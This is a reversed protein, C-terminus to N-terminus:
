SYQINVEFLQCKTTNKNKNKRDKPIRRIFTVKKMISEYKLNYELNHPLMQSYYLCLVVLLCTKLSISGNKQSLTVQNLLFIKRNNKKYQVSFTNMLFLIQGQSPQSLFIHDTHVHRQTFTQISVRLLIIALM